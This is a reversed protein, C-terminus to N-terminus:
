PRLKKRGGGLVAQALFGLALLGWLVWEWWRRGTAALGACFLVMGANLTRGTAPRHLEARLTRRERSARWHERSARWHAWSLTALLLALGAVWLGNALMSSVDIM